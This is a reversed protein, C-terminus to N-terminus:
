SSRLETLKARYTKNEPKKLVATKLLKIAQPKRGCNMYIEVEALISEEDDFNPPKSTFKWKLVLLIIVILAM